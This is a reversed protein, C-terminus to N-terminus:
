IYHKDITDYMQVVDSYGLDNLLNKLVDDAKIHADEKDKIASIEQLKKIADNKDM